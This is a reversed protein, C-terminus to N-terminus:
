LRILHGNWSSRNRNSKEKPKATTLKQKKEKTNRKNTRTPLSGDSSTILSGLLRWIFKEHQASGPLIRLQYSFDLMRLACNTRRQRNKEIFLFYFQKRAKQEGREKEKKKERKREKGRWCSVCVVCLVECLRSSMWKQFFSRFSERINNGKPKEM